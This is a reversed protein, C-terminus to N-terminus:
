VEECYDMKFCFLYKGRYVGRALKNKTCKYNKTRVFTLPGPRPRAGMNGSKERWGASIGKMGVRGKALFALCAVFTGFDVAIDHRTGCVHTRNQNRAAVCCSTELLRLHTLQRSATVLNRSRLTVVGEDSVTCFSAVSLTAADNHCTLM